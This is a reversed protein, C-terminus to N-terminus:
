HARGRETGGGSRAGLGGKMHSEKVFFSDGVPDHRTKAFSQENNAGPHTEIQSFYGEVAVLAIPPPTEQTPRGMIQLINRTRVM